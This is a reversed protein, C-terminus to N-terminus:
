SAASVLSATVVVVFVLMMAESTITSRLREALVDDDPDTELAPLLVFHNYAGGLMALGAAASKLLLMQGWQTSFLEGVSDLVLIAMIGGAGIVAGLAITAIGSFRVVMEVARSAVGSRHRTWLVIAMAVVGGLWVSGAVVHVSNVVAHLLRPGKSVTHGDFWFSVVAVVMGVYAASSTRDPVWRRIVSPETSQKAMPATRIDAPPRPTPTTSITITPRPADGVFAHGTRERHRRLLPDISAVTAPLWTVQEEMRHRAAPRGQQRADSRDWFEHREEREYELTSNAAASLSNAPQPTRIPSTVTAFGLAIALGGAGRLLTAMGPQSSWYGSISSEAIRTIGVYELLAGAALIAGLVRLAQIAREIESRRGRLTTATFAAGGIILTITAFELLRGWRSIGEGSRSEDVSLFEELSASGGAMDAMSGDSMDAMSDDSMDMTSGNSMDAMSDDSMDMTSGDTVAIEGPEVASDADPSDAGATDVGATAPATVTFSFTGDIPHADPANVAWRVGIQGGALPPDFTLEFAKQDSSTVTTPTRVTGDPTLITFGDDGYETEGSFRFTMMGLPESVTEGDAPTSGLFDTHASAAGAPLLVAILM